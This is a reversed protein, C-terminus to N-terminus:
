PTRANISADVSCPHTAHRFKRHKRPLQRRELPAASAAYGGMAWLELSPISVHFLVVDATHYEKYRLAAMPAGHLRSHLDLTQSGSSCKWPKARGSVYWSPGQRTILDLISRTFRAFWRDFHITEKKPVTADNKSCQLQLNGLNFTLKDPDGDSHCVAIRRGLTQCRDAPPKIAFFLDHHPPSHERIRTRQLRSRPSSRHM